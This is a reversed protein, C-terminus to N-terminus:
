PTVQDYRRRYRELVGPIGDLTGPLVEGTVEVDSLIRGLTHALEAAHSDLADVKHWDPCGAHIEAPARTDCRHELGVSIRITPRHDARAAVM